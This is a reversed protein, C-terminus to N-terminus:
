ALGYAKAKAELLIRLMRDDQQSYDATTTFVVDPNCTAVIPKLRQGFILWKRKEPNNQMCHVSCFRCRRLRTIYYEMIEQSDPHSRIINEFIEAQLTGPEVIPFVYTYRSGSRIIKLLDKQKSRFTCEAGWKYYYKKSLRTQASLDELLRSFRKRSDPELGGLMFALDLKQPEFRLAFFNMPGIHWPCISKKAHIAAEARIMQEAALFLNPYDRHRIVTETEGQEITMGRQLMRAFPKEFAEQTPFIKIKNYVKKRIGVMMRDYVANDLVVQDASFRTALSFLTVDKKQIPNFLFNAHFNLIEDLKKQESFDKPSVDQTLGYAEPHEYIDDYTDVVYHFLHHCSENLTKDSIWATTEEVDYKHVLQNWLQRHLPSTFESTCRELM